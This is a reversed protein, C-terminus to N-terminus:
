KDNKYHGNKTNTDAAEVMACYVTKDQISDLHGGKDFNNCYRSTKVVDLMLLHFRIFDAETELKIGNPFLGKMVPGIQEFNDGYVANRQRYLDAAKDLLDSAKVKQSDSACQDPKDEIAKSAEVRWIFKLDFPILPHRWIQYHYTRGREQLYKNTHNKTDLSYILTASNAIADPIFEGHDMHIGIHSIFPDDGRGVNKNWGGEIFRLLELEIGYDYNFHLTAMVESERRPSEYDYDYGTGVVEDSIFDSHELGLASAVAMFDTGEPVYIAIQDIKM